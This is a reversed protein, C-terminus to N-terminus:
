DKNKQAKLTKVFEHLQASTGKPIEVVVFEVTQAKRWRRFHAQMSEGENSYNGDYVTGGDIVITADDAAEMPDTEEDGNVIIRGDDHFRGDPWFVPDSYYAKFEKGTTKISM